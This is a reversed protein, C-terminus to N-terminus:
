EAFIKVEYAGLEAEGKIVEGGFFERLEKKVEVKVSEPAYNLVFFYRRGDKERVALECCEPLELTERWPTGAGLKELFVKVTDLAFAGGFYYAEGKGYIPLACTQVGTM